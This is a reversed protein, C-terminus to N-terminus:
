QSIIYIFFLIILYIWLGDGMGLGGVTGSVFEEGNNMKLIKKDAMLGHLTDGVISGIVVPPLIFLITRFTVPLVHFFSNVIVFIVILLILSIFDNRTSSVVGGTFEDTYKNKQEKFILLYILISSITLIIMLLAFNGSSSINNYGILPLFSMILIFVISLNFGLHNSFYLDFFSSIFALLLIIIFVEPRLFYLNGSYNFLDITIIFFYVLSMRVQQRSNRKRYLSNDSQKLSKGSFLKGMSFRSVTFIIAYLFAYALPLFVNKTYSYNFINGAIGRLIYSLVIFSIMAWIWSLFYGTIDIDEIFLLSLMALLVDFITIYLIGPISIISINIYKLFFLFFFAMAGIFLLKLGYENITVHM